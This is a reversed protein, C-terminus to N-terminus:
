CDSTGFFFFGFYFVFLLFGMYNLYIAVFCFLMDGFLQVYNFKSYKTLICLNSVKFKQLLQLLDFSLSQITAQFCLFDVTIM